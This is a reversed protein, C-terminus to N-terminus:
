HYVEFRYPIFLPLYDFIFGLFSRLQTRHFLEIALMSAFIVITIGVYRICIPTEASIDEYTLLHWVVLLNKHRVGFSTEKVM